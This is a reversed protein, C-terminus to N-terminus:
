VVSRDSQPRAEYGAGQAPSTSVVPDVKDHDRRNRYGLHGIVDWSNARGEAVLKQESANKRKFFVPPPHPLHNLVLVTFFAILLTPLVWPSSQFDAAHEDNLQILSVLCFGIGFLFNLAARTYNWPTWRKTRSAILLLNM